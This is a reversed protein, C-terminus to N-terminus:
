SRREVVRRAIEALTVGRPGLPELSGHAEALLSRATRRALDLGHISVYTAKRAARDKGATKGLRTADETADLIDDVVQFALGIAAAYADLAV